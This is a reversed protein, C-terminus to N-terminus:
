AEAGFCEKRVWPGQGVRSQRQETSCNAGRAPSDPTPLKRSTFDMSSRPTLSRVLRAERIHYKKSKLQAHITNTNHIQM